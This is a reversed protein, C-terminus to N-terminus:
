DVSDAGLVTFNPPASALDRTGSFTPSGFIVYAEGAASKLNSAAAANGAGVLVDDIGDGNFDGSAGRGLTDGSDVGVVTVNAPTAALDHTPSHFADGGAWPLLATMLALCVVAVLILIRPTKM